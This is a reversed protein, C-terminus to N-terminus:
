QVKQVGLNESLGMKLTQLTWPGLVMWFWGSGDLVM